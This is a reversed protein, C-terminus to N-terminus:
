GEPAPAACLFSLGSSYGGPHEAILLDVAAVHRSEVVAEPVTVSAGDVTVTLNHIADGLRLEAIEAREPRPAPNGAADHPMYGHHPQAKSLARSQAIAHCIAQDVAAQETKNM